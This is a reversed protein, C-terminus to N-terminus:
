ALRGTLYIEVETKIEAVSSDLRIIIGTDIADKIKKNIVDTQIRIPRKSLLENSYSTFVNVSFNKLLRTYINSDNFEANIQYTNTITGTLDEPKLFTNIESGISIMQIEFEIKSDFLFSLIETRNDLSFFSALWIFVEDNKSFQETLYNCFAATVRPDNLFDTSNLFYENKDAGMGLWNFDPLILSSNDKSLIKFIELKNIRLTGDIRPDLTGIILKM